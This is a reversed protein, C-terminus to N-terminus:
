DSAFHLLRKKQPGMCIRPGRTNVDGNFLHTSHVPHHHSDDVLLVLEIGSGGRFSSMGGSDELPSGSEQSM